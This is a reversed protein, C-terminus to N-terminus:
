VVNLLLFHPFELPHGPQDALAFRNLKGTRIGVAALLPERDGVILHGPSLYASRYCHTPAAAISRAARAQDRETATPHVIDAVATGLAEVLQALATYSSAPRSM